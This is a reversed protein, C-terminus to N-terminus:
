VNTRTILQSCFFCIPPLLACTTQLLPKLSKIRHNFPSIGYVPIHENKGLYIWFIGPTGFFKSQTQLISSSSDVLSSHVCDKLLWMKLFNLLRQLPKSTHAEATTASPSLKGAAYPLKRSEQTPGPFDLRGNSNRLFAPSQERTVAPGISRM